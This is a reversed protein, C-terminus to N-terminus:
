WVFSSMGGKSPLVLRCSLVHLNSPTTTGGSLSAPSIVSQFSCAMTHTAGCAQRLVWCDCAACKQLWTAWLETPQSRPMAM